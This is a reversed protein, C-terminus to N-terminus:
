FGHHKRTYEKLEADSMRAFDPGTKIGRKARAQDLKAQILDLEETPAEALQAQVAAADVPEFKRDTMTNTREPTKHEQEFQRRGTICNQDACTKIQEYRYSVTRHRYQPLAVAHADKERSKGGGIKGRLNSSTGARMRM